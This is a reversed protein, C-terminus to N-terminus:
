IMFLRSMVVSNATGLVEAQLLKERRGHERLGKFIM